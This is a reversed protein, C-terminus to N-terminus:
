GFVEVAAVTRFAEPCIGDRGYADLFRDRYRDTKLNFNLTWIGWLLDVHRDGVGASDLDIFGSFRWNDLMINPLCYDGHLLTDTKLYKSNREVECWAEEASAFDWNDSFLHVDYAKAEYNRQAISLQDATRDIPCGEFSTEHLARLLQGTTQCLQEPHDLYPKWTCDEGAIRRTLLWDFAQQEYALIEAGLGRSHFFSTMAVEKKLSGKPAKKLYYGDGKDLFWVQAAVSCSSDFM